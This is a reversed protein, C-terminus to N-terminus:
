ANNEEETPQVQELCTCTAQKRLTRRNITAWEEEPPQQRNLERPYGCRKHNVGCSKCSTAKALWLNHKGM